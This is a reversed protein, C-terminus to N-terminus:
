PCAGGLGTVVLCYLVKTQDGVVGVAAVIVVAILSAVLAYEISSAGQEDQQFRQLATLLSNM